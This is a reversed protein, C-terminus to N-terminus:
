QKLVKSPSLYPRYDKRPQQRVQSLSKLHRDHCTDTPPAFSSSDTSNRIRTHSPNTDHTKILTEYSLTDNLSTDPKSPYVTKSSEDDSPSTDTIFLSSDSNAYEIPKPIDLNNSDSFRM